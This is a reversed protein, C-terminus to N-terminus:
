SSGCRTDLVGRSVLGLLFGGGLLGCGSTGALFLVNGWYGGKGEWDVGRCDVLYGYYGHPANGVYAGAKPLVGFVDEIEAFCIGKECVGLDLLEEALEADRIAFDCIVGRCCM